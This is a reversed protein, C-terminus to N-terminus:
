GNYRELYALARRLGEVTDGLQGIGMNCSGCLVARPAGTVHDHDIHVSRFSDLRLPERCVGCAGGQACVMSWYVGRSLGYRIQRRQDQRQQTSRARYAQDSQAALEPNRARWRGAAPAM